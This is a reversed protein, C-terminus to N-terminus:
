DHLTDNASTRLEEGIAAMQARILPAMELLARYEQVQHHSYTPLGKAKQTRLWRLLMIQLNSETLQSIVDAGFIDLLQSIQRRLTELASEGAKQQEELFKARNFHVSPSDSSSQTFAEALGGALEAAVIERAYIACDTAKGVIHATLDVELVAGTIDGVVALHAGVSLAADAVNGHIRLDGSVQLECESGVKGHVILDGYVSLKTKAPLDGIVWLSENVIGSVEAGRARRFFQVEGKVVTPTSHLSDKVRKDAFFRQFVLIGEERASISRGAPSVSVGSGAELRITTGRRPSLERGFVNKGTKIGQVPPRVEAILEGPEVLRLGLWSTEAAKDGSPFWTYHMRSPLGVDPLEGQAIVADRIPIMDYICTGILERLHSRDVLSLDVGEMRLRNEVTEFTIPKEFRDLPNLDVAVRMDSFHTGDSAIMDLFRVRVDGSPSEQKRIQMQVLIGNRTKKRSLLQVYELRQDSVGFSAALERKIQRLQEPIEQARENPFLVRVKWLNAGQAVLQVRTDPNTTDLRSM